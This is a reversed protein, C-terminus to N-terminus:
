GVQLAQSRVAGLSFAYQLMTLLLKVAHPLTAGNDQRMHGLTTAMAAVSSTAAGPAPM